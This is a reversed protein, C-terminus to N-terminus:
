GGGARMNLHDRYYAFFLVDVYARTTQLRFLFYFSVHAKQGAWSGTEKVSEKADQAKDKVYEQADRTAGKAAAGTERAQM